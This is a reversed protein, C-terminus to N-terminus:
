PCNSGLLVKTADDNFSADAPAERRWLEACLTGSTVINVAYLLDNEFLELNGLDTWPGGSTQQLQINNSGQPVDKFDTSCGSGCNELNETFEVDGVKVKHFLAGSNNVVQASPPRVEEDRKGCCCRYTLVVFVLILLQIIIILIEM